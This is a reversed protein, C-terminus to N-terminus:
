RAMPSTKFTKHYGTSEEVDDDAEVLAVSLTGAYEM